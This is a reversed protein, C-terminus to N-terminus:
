PSKPATMLRFDDGRVPISLDIPVLEPTNLLGWDTTNRSTLSCCPARIGRKGPALARPKSWPMSLMPLITPHPVISPLICQQSARATPWTGFGAHNPLFLKPSALPNYSGTLPTPHAPPLASSQQQDNRGQPSVATHVPATNTAGTTGQQVQIQQPTGILATNGKQTVQDSSFSRTTKPLEGENKYGQGYGTNTKRCSVM